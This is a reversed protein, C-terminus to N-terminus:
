KFWGPNFSYHHLSDVRLCVPSRCEFDILGFSFLVVIVIVIVSLIKFLHKM